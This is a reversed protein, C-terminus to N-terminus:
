SEDLGRASEGSGGNKAGDTSSNFIVVVHFNIDQFLASPQLPTLDSISYRAHLSSCPSTMVGGGVGGWRVLIEGGPNPGGAEM